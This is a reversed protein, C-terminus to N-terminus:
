RVLECDCITIQFVLSNENSYASGNVFRCHLTGLYLRASQDVSHSLDVEVDREVFFGIGFDCIVLADDAREWCDFIRDLM